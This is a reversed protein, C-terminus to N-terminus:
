PSPVLYPAQAGRLLQMAGYQWHHEVGTCSAVTDIADCAIQRRHRDAGHLPITARFVSPEVDM